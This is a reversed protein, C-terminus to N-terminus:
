LYPIIKLTPADATLGHLPCILKGNQELMEMGLHPCKQGTCYHGIYGEYWNLYKQNHPPIALGTTAQKCVLTQSVIGNFEYMSSGDTLIITSTYGDQIELRHKMRPHIDFRGDIHYHRHPFDFARDSHPLDIVPLFYARGDEKLVIEACPVKYTEGIVFDM